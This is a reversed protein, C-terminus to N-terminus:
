PTRTAAHQLLLHTIVAHEVRAVEWPPVPMPRGRVHWVAGPHRRRLDFAAALLERVVPDADAQRQDDATIADLASSLSPLELGGARKMRAAVVLEVCQDIVSAVNPTM